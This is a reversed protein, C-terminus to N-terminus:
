GIEVRYETTDLFAGSEREETSLTGHCGTTVQELYNMAQSDSVVTVEPISVIEGGRELFLRTAEEITLRDM